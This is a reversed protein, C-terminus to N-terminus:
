SRPTVSAVTLSIAVSTCRQTCFLLIHTALQLPSLSEPLHLAPPQLASQLKLQVLPLLAPQLALRLVLQLAPLHGRAFNISFRKAATLELSIMTSRPSSLFIQIPETKLALHQSLARIYLLIMSVVTARVGLHLRRALFCTMSVPTRTVALM